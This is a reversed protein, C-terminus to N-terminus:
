KQLNITNQGSLINTCSSSLLSGTLKIPSTLTMEFTQNECFRCQSDHLNLYANGPIITLKNNAFTGTCTYRAEMYNTLWPNDSDNEHIIKLDATVQSTTQTYSLVNLEMKMNSYCSKESYFTGKWLGLISGSPIPTPIPIPTPTPTPTPIPVPDSAQIKKSNYVVELENKSCSSLIGAFLFVSIFFKVKIMINLNLISYQM